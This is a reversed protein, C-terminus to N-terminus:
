EEMMFLKEVYTSFEDKTKLSFLRGRITEDSTIVLNKDWTEQYESDTRHLIQPLEHTSIRVKRDNKKLYFSTIIGSDESTHYLEAGQRQAEDAIVKIIKHNDLDTVEYECTSYFKGVLENFVSTELKEIEIRFQARKMEQVSYYGNKLAKLEEELDMVEWYPMESIFIKTETEYQIGAAKIKKLLTKNLPSANYKHQDFTIGGTNGNKVYCNKLLKRRGFSDRVYGQEVHAIEKEISVKKNSLKEEIEKIRQQIIMKDEM